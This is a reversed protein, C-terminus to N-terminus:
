SKRNFIKSRQEDFLELWGYKMWLRLAESFSSQETPVSLFLINIKRKRVFNLGVAFSVEAFVNPGIYGDIDNKRENAIFLVDADNLAKYFSEHVKPWEKEFDKKEIPVPHAIVEHEKEWFTVWKLIENQLSASGSIVVKM